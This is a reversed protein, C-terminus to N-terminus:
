STGLWTKRWTFPSIASCNFCDPGCGPLEGSIKFFMKFAGILKWNKPVVVLWLLKAERRFKWSTGTAFVTLNHFVFKWTSEGMLFHTHECFEFSVASHAEGSIGKTCNTTTITLGTVLPFDLVTTLFNETPPSQTQAPPSSMSFISLLGESKYHIMKWNPPPKSSRKPALGVLAVRPSPVPSIGGQFIKRRSFHTPCLSFIQTGWFVRRVVHHGLSTVPRTITRWNLFWGYKM